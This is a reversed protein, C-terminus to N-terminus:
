LFLGLDRARVPGHGPEIEVIRLDDLDGALELWRGAALELDGVDIEGIELAAREIDFAEAAAIGPEVGARRIREDFGRFEDARQLAALAETDGARLLDGELV